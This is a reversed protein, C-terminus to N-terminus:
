SSGENKVLTKLYAQYTKPAVWTLVNAETAKLFLDNRGPFNDGQKVPKWKEDDAYYIFMLRQDQLNPSIYQLLDGDKIEYGRTVHQPADWPSDPSYDGQFTFVTTNNVKRKNSVRRVRTDQVAISGDM